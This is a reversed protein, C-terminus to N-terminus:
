CSTGFVIHTITLIITGKQTGWINPATNYYPDLFPGYNQCGGMYVRFKLDYCCGGYLGAALAKPARPVVAQVNM